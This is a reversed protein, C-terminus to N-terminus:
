RRGPAHYRVKLQTQIFGITQLFLPRYQDANKERVFFACSQIIAIKFTMPSSPHLCVQALSEVTGELNLHTLFNFAATTMDQDFLGVEGAVTRRFVADRVEDQIDMAYSIIAAESEIDFHRVVRLLQLVCYAASENKNKLGKRLGDLYQMKKNIGGTKSERLGSAVEFVEPTLFLLSMQMPSLIARRQNNDVATQAMDFLTDAGGDLRRHQHHLRVFEMPYRDVWRRIMLPLAIAVTNQFSKKFHLFSSCLEQIVLGLKQADLWTYSMLRLMTLSCKEEEALTTPQPVGSQINATTRIGFVTTRLDEFTSNWNAASSYEVIVKAFPEIQLWRQVKPNSATMGPVNIALRLGFEEYKGADLFNRLIYDDLLTVSPLVFNDPVPALLMRNIETLRGVIAGDLPEPLVLSPAPRGNEIGGAGNAAKERQHQWAASCCDAILGYVYTGSAFIHNPQSELSRYPRILEELLRILSDLVLTISSASIKLLSTRTIVIIEDQRFDEAHSGTRHPLQLVSTNACESALAQVPASSPRM